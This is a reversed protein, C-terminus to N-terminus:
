RHDSSGWNLIISLMPQVESAFTDVLFRSGDPTPAYLFVNQTPVIQSSVVEFLPTAAGVPAAGAGISVAMVHWRPGAFSPSELYYLEHSDGRWRPQYGYTSSVQWKTEPLPPTATFPRVYVQYTGSEESVYALWKGDPSVQAQSESAPTRVLPM